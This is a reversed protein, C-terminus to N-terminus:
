IFNDGNKVEENVPVRHVSERVQLNDHCYGFSAQSTLSSTCLTDTLSSSALVPSWMSTNNHDYVTALYQM